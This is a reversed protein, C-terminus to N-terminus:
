DNLIELITMLEAEDKFLIALDDAYLLINLFNLGNELFKEVLTNIFIDFLFPSLTSGQPVGRNAKYIASNIEVLSNSLLFDLVLYENDLLIQKTKIIELIKLIPVTDFANSLDIFLFGYSKSKEQKAKKFLECIRYLNVDAGLTPVFGTQSKQINNKVYYKLKELVLNELLKKIPSNITIPRLQKPTPTDPYVKNLFFM